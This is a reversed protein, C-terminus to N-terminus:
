FSIGQWSHRMDHSVGDRPRLLPNHFSGTATIRSKSWVNPRMRMYQALIATCVVVVVTAITSGVVVVTLGM